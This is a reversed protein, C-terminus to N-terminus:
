LDRLVLELEGLDKITKTREPFIDGKETSRGIFKVNAKKSHNYDEMSDGVVLSEENKINYRELNKLIVESKKLPAGYIGNFYRNLGREKLTYILEEEPTASILILKVKDQYKKLFTETGRVIPCKLIRELVMKSFKKSIKERENDDLPKKLINKYIHEFKEYRNLGENNELYSYIEDKKEFDKFLEKFSRLKIGSSEVLTGDFDFFIIKIM